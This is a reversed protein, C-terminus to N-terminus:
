YEQFTNVSFPPLDATAFVNARATTPDASLEFDRRESMSSFAMARHLMRKANDAGDVRITFKVTKPTKNIALIRMKGGKLTAKAAVANADPELEHTSMWSGYVTSNEFVSRVIEYTAGMVTKILGNGEDIYLPDLQTAAGFWLARQYIDQSGFIELYLDAMAIATIGQRKGIQVGFESLWVPKGPAFSSAFDISAVLQKATTLAKKYGDQTVTNSDKEVDFYRHVSIADFYDKTQTLTRNYEPHHTSTRYSVPISVRIAPDEDKIAAAASKAVNYCDQFTALRNSRQDAWFWENGLEINKVALGKAKLDRIHLRTQWNSHCVEYNFGFTWLIDFGLEKQLKVLNAMGLTTNNNAWTTLPGTLGENDYNDYKRAGDIRWDYFNAWAGVGEGRMSPMDVLRGIDLQEENSWAGYNVGLLYPNAAKKVSTNINITASVTAPLAYPYTQALAGTLATLHLFALLCTKRLPPTTPSCSIPNM